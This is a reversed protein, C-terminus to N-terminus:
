VFDLWREYFANRFANADIGFKVPIDNICLDRAKNRVVLRSRACFGSIERTLYILCSTLTKALEAFTVRTYPRDSQACRTYMQWRARAAFWIVRIANWNVSIRDRRRCDGGDSIRGSQEWILWFPSEWSRWSGVDSQITYGGDAWAQWDDISWVRNRISWEPGGTWDRLGSM